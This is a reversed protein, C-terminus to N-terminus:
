EPYAIKYLNQVEEKAAKHNPHGPNRYAHDKSGQIERAKSLAEQPTLGGLKGDGHGLFVDESLLKAANALIKVVQPDSGMGTKLFAEREAQDPMFEKFAINAKRLQTDYQEGWEKKLGDVQETFSTEAQLKQAASMEGGTKNFENVIREFQWPLVGAAHAAIKVKEMVDENIAQDGELSLKYDEIKE